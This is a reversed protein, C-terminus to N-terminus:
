AAKSHPTTAGSEVLLELVVERVQQDLNPDNLDGQSDFRNMAHGVAVEGDVVRAGM